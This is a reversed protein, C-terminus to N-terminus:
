VARWLKTAPSSSRGQRTSSVRRPTSRRGSPSRSIRQSTLRHGERDGVEGEVRAALLDAPRELGGGQGLGGLAELTAAQERDLEPSGGCGGGRGRRGPSAESPTGESRRVLDHETALHRKQEPRPVREEGGQLGEALLGAVRGQGASSRAWTM